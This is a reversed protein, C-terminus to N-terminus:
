ELLMVKVKLDKFYILGLIRKEMFFYNARRKLNEFLAFIKNGKLESKLVIQFRDLWVVFEIAM